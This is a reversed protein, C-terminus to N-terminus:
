EKNRYYEKIDEESIVKIQSTETLFSKDREERDARNDNRLVGEETIRIDKGIQDADELIPISAPKPTELPPVQPEEQRIESKKDVALKDSSVKQFLKDKQDKTSINRKSQNSDEIIVQTMREPKEPKFSENTIEESFKDMGIFERQNKPQKKRKKAREKKEQIEESEVIEQKTELWYKRGLLRGIVIGIMQFLITMILGIGFLVFITITAGTVQYIIGYPLYWFITPAALFTFQNWIAGTTESAAFLTVVTVTTTLILIPLLTYLVYSFYRKKEGAYINKFSMVFLGIWFLGIVILQLSSVVYNFGSSAVADFINKFVLVLLIYIVNGFISTELPSLRRKKIIQNMESEVETNIKKM